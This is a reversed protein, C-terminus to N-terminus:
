NIKRPGNPNMLIQIFIRSYEGNYWPKLTPPVLKAFSKHIRAERLTYILSKLQDKTTDGSVLLNITFGCRTTKKYKPLEAPLKTEPKTLINQPPVTQVIAQSEIESNKTQLKINPKFSGCNKLLFFLGIIALFGSILSWCGKLM